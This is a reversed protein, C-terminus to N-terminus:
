HWCSKEAIQYFIEMGFLVAYLAIWVTEMRAMEANYISIQCLILSIQCVTLYRVFSVWNLRKEM